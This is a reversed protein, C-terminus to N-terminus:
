CACGRSCGRSSANAGAAGAAGPIPAARGPTCGRSGGRSANAGAAAPSSAAARRRRCKDAAAAAMCQQRSRRGETAAPKSEARSMAPTDAHNPTHISMLHCPVAPLHRHLSCLNVGVSALRVGHVCWAECQMERVSQRVRMREWEAKVRTEGDRRRETEGDRRRGREREGEKEGERGGDM